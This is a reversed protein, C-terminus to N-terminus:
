CGDPWLGPGRGLALVTWAGVAALGRAVLRAAACLGSNAGAHTRSALTPARRRATFAHRRDLASVASRQVHAGRDPGSGLPGTHHALATALRLGHALPIARAFDLREARDFFGSWHFLSRATHGADGAPRAAACGAAAACLGPGVVMCRDVLGDRHIGSRDLALPAARAAMAPRSGLIALSR